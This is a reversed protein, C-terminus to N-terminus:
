QEGDGDRRIWNSKSFLVYWRIPLQTKETGYYNADSRSMGLDALKLSYKDMETTVLINRVALDRHIINNKELYRM